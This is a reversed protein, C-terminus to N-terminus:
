IHNKRVKKLGYRAIINNIRQLLEKKDDQLLVKVLEFTHPLYENYIVREAVINIGVNFAGCMVDIFTSIHKPLVKTIENM